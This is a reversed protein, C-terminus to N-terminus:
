RSSIIAIVSVSLFMGSSTYVRSFSEASNCRRLRFLSAITQRSATRSGVLYGGETLPQRSRPLEPTDQWPSLELGAINVGHFSLDSVITTSALTNADGYKGLSHETAASSSSTRPGSHATGMRHRLSNQLMKAPYRRYPWLNSNIFAKDSM